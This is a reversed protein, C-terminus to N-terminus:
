KCCAENLLGKRLQVTLHLAEDSLQQNQCIEAVDLLDFTHPQMISLTKATLHSLFVSNVAGMKNKYISKQGRDTNNASFLIPTAGLKNIVDTVGTPDSVFFVNGM